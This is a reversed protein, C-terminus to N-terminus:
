FIPEFTAQPTSFFFFLDRKVFKSLALRFDVNKLQFKVEVIGTTKIRSLLIDQETPKYDPM